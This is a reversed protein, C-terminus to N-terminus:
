NTWIALSKPDEGFNVKLDTGFSRVLIKPSIKTVLSTVSGDGKMTELFENDEGFLDYPWDAYMFGVPVLKGPFM